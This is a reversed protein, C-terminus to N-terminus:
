RRPFLTSVGTNYLKFYFHECVKQIQKRVIMPIGWSALTVALVMIALTFAFFTRSHKVINLMKVVFGREFVERSSVECKSVVSAPM